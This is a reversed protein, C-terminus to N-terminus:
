KEITGYKKIDRIFFFVFALFIPMILMIALGGFGAEGPAQNMLYFYYMTEIALIILFIVDVVIQVVVSIKNSLVLCVIISVLYFLVLPVFIKQDLLFEFDYISNTLYYLVSIILVRVVLMTKKMNM